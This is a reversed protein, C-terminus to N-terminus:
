KHVSKMRFPVDFNLSSFQSFDISRYFEVGVGRIVLCKDLDNDTYLALVFVMFLVLKHIMESLRDMNGM